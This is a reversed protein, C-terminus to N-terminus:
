TFGFSGGLPRLPWYCELSFHAPLDGATDSLRDFAGLVLGHESGLQDELPLEALVSNDFVMFIAVNYMSESMDIPEAIM